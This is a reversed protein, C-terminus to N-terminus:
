LNAEVLELCRARLDKLEVMSPQRSTIPDLQHRPPLYLSSSERKDEFQSLCLLTADPWVKLTHIQKCNLFYSERVGFVGSEATERLCVPPGSKALGNEPSYDLRVMSHRTSDRGGELGEKFVTNQVKGALVVTNFDYRHSHPHILFGSQDNRAGEILYLKLTFKDSRSLNLYQLGPVHHDMVSHKISEELDLDILQRRVLAHLSANTTM